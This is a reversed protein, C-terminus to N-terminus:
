TANRCTQRGYSNAHKFFHCFKVKQINFCHLIEQRVSHIKKQDLCLCRWPEQDMSCWRESEHSCFRALWNSWKVKEEVVQILTDVWSLIHPFM